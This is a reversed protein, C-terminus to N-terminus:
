EDDSGKINNNIFMVVIHCIMDEFYHYTDEHPYKKEIMKIFREDTSNSNIGLASDIYKIFKDKVYEKPPSVHNNHWFVYWMQDITLYYRQKNDSWEKLIDM